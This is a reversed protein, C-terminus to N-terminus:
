PCVNCGTQRYLDYTDVKDGTLAGYNLKAVGEVEKRYAVECIEKHKYFSEIDKPTIVVKEKNRYTIGSAHLVNVLKKSRTDSGVDSKRQIHLDGPIAVVECPVIHLCADNYLIVDLRDINNNSNEDTADKDNNVVELQISMANSYEHSVTFATSGCKFCNIKFGGTNDLDKKPTLLPPNYLESGNTTCNLDLCEWSSKTVVKYSTSYSAIMGIVMVDKCDKAHKAESVSMVKTTM